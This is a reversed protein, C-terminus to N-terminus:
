KIQNIITTELLMAAYFVSIEVDSIHKFDFGVIVLVM